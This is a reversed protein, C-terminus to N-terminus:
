TCREEAVQDATESTKMVVLLDHSSIFTSDVSLSQCLDSLAGEAQHSVKTDLVKNHKWWWLCRNSELWFKFLRRQLSLKSCPRRSNWTGFNVWFWTQPVRKRSIKEDIKTMFLHECLVPACDEGVM